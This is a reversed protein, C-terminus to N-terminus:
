LTRTGPATIHVSHSPEGQRNQGKKMDISIEFDTKVVIDSLEFAQNGHEQGTKLGRGNTLNATDHEGQRTLMETDSDLPEPDQNRRRRATHSSPSTIKSVHAYRGQGSRTSSYAAASSGLGFWKFIMPRTAPLNACTIGLGVEVLSWLGGAVNTFTFDSTNLQYLGYIRFISAVCVSASTILM